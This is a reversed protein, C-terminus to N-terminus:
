TGLVGGERTPCAWGWLGPDKCISSKLRWDVSGESWSLLWLAALMATGPGALRQCWRGM